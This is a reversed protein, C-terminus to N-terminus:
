TLPPIPVGHSQTHAQPPPPHRGTPPRVMSVAYQGRPVTHADLRQDLDVIRQQQQLEACAGERLM